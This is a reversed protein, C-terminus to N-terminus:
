EGEKGNINSYCILGSGIVDLCFMALFIMALIAIGKKKIDRKIFSRITYAYDALSTSITYIYTISCMIFILVPIGMMLFPNLMAAFLMFGFFFNIMYWPILVLKVKFTIEYPNEMGKFLGILAFIFNLIGLPFVIVLNGIVSSLILYTM